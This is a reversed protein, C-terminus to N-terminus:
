CERGRSCTTCQEQQAVPARLLATIRPCCRGSSRRRGAVAIVGAIMSVLPHELRGPAMVNDQGDTYLRRKEEHVVRVSGMALFSKIWVWPQWIFSYSLERM